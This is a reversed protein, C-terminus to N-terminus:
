LEPMPPTMLPGTSLATFWNMEWPFSPKSIKTVSKKLEKLTDSNESNTKHQLGAKELKERELLNKTM